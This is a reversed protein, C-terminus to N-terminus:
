LTGKQRIALWDAECESVIYGCAQMFLCLDKRDKPSLTTREILMVAPSYQLLDFSNLVEREMGEVDVVLVDVQKVGYGGLITRLPYASVQQVETGTLLAERVTESLQHKAAIEPNLMNHNRATALGRAWPPLTAAVSPKVRRLRLPGAEAAVALNAFLLRHCNAARYSSKCQAYLDTLPEILLGALKREIIVERLPDCAEGDCAGVQVVFPDPLARVAAQFAEYAM